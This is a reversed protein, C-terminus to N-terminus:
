EGGLGLTAEPSPADEMWVPTTPVTERTEPQMVYAEDGAGENVVGVQRLRLGTLRNSSIKLQDHNNTRSYYTVDDGILRMRHEAKDFRFRYTSSVASTGGTLDEVVLVGKKVSLSANGLPYPDMAMEGVPEHGFDVETRYGLAVVLRRTEAEDDRMVAATDLDGDGNLDGDIRAEVRGTFQNVLMEDTMPELVPRPDPPSQATAALSLTLLLLVTPLRRM